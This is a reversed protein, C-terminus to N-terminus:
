RRPRNRSGTSRVRTARRAIGFSQQLCDVGALRLGHDDALGGAVVVFCHLCFNGHGTELWTRTCRNSQLHRLADCRHCCVRPTALLHDVPLRGTVHSHLRPESVESDPAGVSGDAGRVITGAM